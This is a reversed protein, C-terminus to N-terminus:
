KKEIATDKRIGDFPFSNNKPRDCRIHLSGSFERIIPLKELILGTKAFPKILSVPTAPHLWDYPLITINVFGTKRLLDRFQWRIFASEDPSDGVRAKLWPINKQIMIQPNLMNPEAFSMCGGPKLLEFIKALAANIDLHHLVSSGIVADFPGDMTCDEFRKELFIVRDAPIGRSRAKEILEKSIDVAIIRAGTGAFMETFLGTGCGIELVRMGPKLHVSKAILDARRKARLQGAPTNWGWLRETDRFSIKKGHAIERDARDLPKVTM